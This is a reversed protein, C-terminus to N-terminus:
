TLKVLEGRPRATVAIQANSVNSAVDRTSTFGGNTHLPVARERSRRWLPRANRVNRTTEGGEIGGLIPVLPARPDNPSDVDRWLRALDTAARLEFM